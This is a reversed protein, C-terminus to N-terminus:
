TRSIVSKIIQDELTELRIKGQNSLMVFRVAGSKRKKDGELALMFREIHRVRYGINFGYSEFLRLAREAFVHDTIKLKLGSELAKAVGWAVAEGHAWENLNGASELAHAFTHGLNLASRIGIEERPDAEIYFRKVQLSDIVMRELVMADRRMIARQQNEFFEMLSQDQALLAHKLTEGLGNKFEKEPLSKVITPCVFVHKAPYFTGVLNKITFVDIATKGGLSADVQSLLTTPILILQCGRMYISAAFAATDCVVGGGFAVIFGDRALRLKVAAAVIKEISQWSKAAEGSPLVVTKQSDTALFKVTNTDCVWLVSRITTEIHSTISAVDTALIVETRKEGLICDYLHKM